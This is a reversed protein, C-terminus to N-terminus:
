PANAPKMQVLIPGNAFPGTVSSTSDGSFVTISGKDRDTFGGGIGQWQPEPRLSGPACIRAEGEGDTLTPATAYLYVALTEEVAHESVRQQVDVRANPLPKNSSDVVRVVRSLWCKGAPEQKQSAAVGNKRTMWSLEGGVLVRHVPVSACGVCLLLSAWVCPATCRRESLSIRRGFSMSGAVGSGQIGAFSSSVLRFRMSECEFPRPTSWLSCPAPSEM